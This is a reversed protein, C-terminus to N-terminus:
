NAATPDPLPNQLQLGFYVFIPNTARSPIPALGSMPQVVQGAQLEQIERIVNEVGRSVATAQRPLGYSQFFNEEDTIVRSLLNQGVIIAASCLTHLADAMPEAFIMVCKHASARATYAPTGPTDVDRVASLGAAKARREEPSASDFIQQRVESAGVTPFLDPLQRQFEAECRSVVKVAFDLYKKLAPDSLILDKTSM